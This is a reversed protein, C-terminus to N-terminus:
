SFSKAMARSLRLVAEELQSDAANSFCLRIFETTHAGVFFSRGDAVVVGEDRSGQQLKWADM